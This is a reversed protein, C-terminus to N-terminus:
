RMRQRRVRVAAVTLLAALSLAASTPEPLTVTFGSGLGLPPNTTDGLQIIGGRAITFIFNFNATGASTDKVRFVYTGLSAPGTTPTPVGAPLSSSIFDLQVQNFPALGFLKCVPVCTSAAQLFPTKGNVYLLYSPTFSSAAVYDFSTNDFLVGIALLAVDAQGESDFTVTVTVTDNVNLPGTTNPSMDVRYANATSAIALLMAAALLRISLVRM